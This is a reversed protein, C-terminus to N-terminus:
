QMGCGHFFQAHVRIFDFWATKDGRLTIVTILWIRSNEISIMLMCYFHRNNSVSRTMKIALRVAHAWGKNLICIPLQFKKIQSRIQLMRTFFVTSFGTETTFVSIRPDLFPLKSTM